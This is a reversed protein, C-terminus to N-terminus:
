LIIIALILVLLAFIFHAFVLGRIPGELGVQITETMIKAQKIVVAAFVLYFVLFLLTAIKILILVSSEFGAFSSM